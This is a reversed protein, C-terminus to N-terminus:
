NLKMRLNDQDIELEAALPPPSFRPLLRCNCRLFSDHLLRLLSPQRRPRCTDLRVERGVREEDPNERGGRAGGETASARQHWDSGSGVASRLKTKSGAAAVTPRRPEHFGRRPHQGGGPRQERHRRVGRISAQGRPTSSIGAPLLHDGEGRDRLLWVVCAWNENVIGLGM